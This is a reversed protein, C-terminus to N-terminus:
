SPQFLRNFVASYIRKLKFLSEVCCSENVKHLTTNELGIELVPVGLSALFRGDSTGGQVCKRPTRGTVSEISESCLRIYPEHVTYYPDALWSLELQYDTNRALGAERLTRHLDTQLSQLSQSPTTRIDIGITARNPIVNDKDGAHATTVSLTPDAFDTRIDRTFTTRSLATVAGALKLIPNDGEEPRAGHAQIGKFHIRGWCAGRRGIKLDFGTPEGVLGYDFRFRRHLNQLLPAGGRRGGNEEDALIALVLTGPRRRTHAALEVAAGIAAAIGTKMDCAGRGYLMGDRILPTFPATVTWSEPPGPPVVDWHGIWCVAPENGEMAAFLSPAGSVTETWCTMGHGALFRSLYEVAQPQTGPPNTTDIAILEQAIKLVADDTM